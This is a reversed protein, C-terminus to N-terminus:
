AGRVTKLSGRVMAREMATNFPVRRMKVIIKDWRRETIGPKGSRPGSMSISRSIFRPYRKGGGASSKLQGPRTKRRFSKHMIAHRVSTGENLFFMRRDDVWISATIDNGSAKLEQHVTPKNRWTGIIEQFLADIDAMEDMLADEIAYQFQKPRFRKPPVIPSLEIQM